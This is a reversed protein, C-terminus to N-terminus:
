TFNRRKVTFIGTFNYVFMGIIIITGGIITQYDPIEKAFIIGLITTLFPTLFM